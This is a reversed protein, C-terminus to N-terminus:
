YASSIALTLQHMAATIEANNYPDQMLLSELQMATSQLAPIAPSDPEIVALLSYASQLLQQADAILTDNQEPQAQQVIPQTTSHIWCEGLNQNTGLYQNIVASYRTDMLSSYLPHGVPITVIGIETTSPCFASLQMKSENCVAVSQHMQCSVTPVSEKPWYETIVGYGMSDSLCADTALQGSVACTTVKVLGLEEPSAEIIDRNQLNKQTHIKSMYSQWLPAASNGGSTKQSFPQYEDQGIWLSSVYWGTMGCFTVGREDSNTGTKGAVTQGKIKASTGTGSSIVSKMMDVTLYATSASFVRHSEQSQHSDYIVNGYSDSIGLFAIPEQYVGSNALVGYATALQLPTIGSSGLALGYPTKDINEAAIGMSRLTDYSREVGVMNLLVQATSVNHSNRIAERLTEPGTYNGGGYNQPWSDQLNSDKWGSIPVPINYVVSAPSNGAEIAPAYVAIPKICSGVPMKMNVARNLTKRASSPTRSGVMAKIEGTRYDIVVAAAQPQIVETVSGDSNKSLVVKASADRLSPYKNWNALTDELIEQIETDIALTIHYGGTRLKAEMRSRNESTNELGNKELLVDIVQSVAYEVYHAYPYMRNSELPSEELVKAAEPNLADQYEQETIFQNELMCRLVYDTRNNTVATYDTTDSSRTYFNRRPNYYYPNNTLAALMACERLSLEAPDRGFYGQSAIQVGYYNEGLFITNLYYELIQLKTYKKELQMALYAEQIKRKYSKESSLVANKILQQTITSGGQQSGTLANTVFSGIIRKVDIGNHTYFRADEVAVFANRLNEPMLSINIMIRNETGKYDTIVNGNCDYFFSTQDQSDLMALDVTPATEMYGKAIGVVYGCLGLGCLVALLVILRITNVLVSVVFNPKKLPPMLISRKPLQSGQPTQYAPNQQWQNEDLSTRM